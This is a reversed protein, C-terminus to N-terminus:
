SAKLTLEENTLEFYLNQLEHIYEIVKIEIDDIFIKYVNDVQRIDLRFHLGFHYKRIKDYYKFGFNILWEETLLIPSLDSYWASRYEPRGEYQIVKCDNINSEIGDIRFISEYKNQVNVYNGIRLEQPKMIEM